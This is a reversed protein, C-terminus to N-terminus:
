IKFTRNKQAYQRPTMGTRKKFTQCFHYVSSFGCAESIETVSLLTDTLLQKAKQIRLELIYQRPTTHYHAAFLKRFYIESIGMQKALTTNSIYPNSLNEEMYQLIPDLPTEKPMSAAFVKELLRYFASYARMHGNQRFFLKKLKEFDDICEQPNQVPFPLIDTDPLEKAQFNVIAFLGETVGYRTYTGGKPLILANRKNSIYTKGNMTYAAEGEICLVLGFCERNVTRYQMGKEMYAIKPPNVIYTVVMENFLDM